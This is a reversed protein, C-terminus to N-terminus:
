DERFDKHCAKCSDGLEQFKALANADNASVAKAFAAAKDRADRARKEFEARKEWVSDLAETKGVKTGEPFLAVIDRNLAELARAHDALQNKYDVKGQLIAATAGMHSGNAKMVAQRYKVVDGPDAASVILAAGLGAGIVLARSISRLMLNEKVL